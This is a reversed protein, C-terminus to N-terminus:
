FVKGVRLSLSPMLNNNDEYDIQPGADLSLLFNNSNLWNIGIPFYTHMGYYGASQSVGLHFGLKRTRIAPFYAKVGASAGILGIAAELGLYPTVLREYAVGAWVDTSSLLLSVINKRSTKEAQKATEVDEGFRYGLKLGLWPSLNSEDGLMSVNESSLIGVDVSYQFDKKGFWTLGVPLYFMGYGDTNVSAFLGTYLNLLRTQPNTLFFTFGAGASLIGAGVEFAVRHNLMQSYTIGIPWSPLGYLGLSVTNSKISKIGSSEVQGKAIFISVLFVLLTLKIKPNEM